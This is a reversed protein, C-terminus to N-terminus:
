KTNPYAKNDKSKVKGCICADRFLSAALYVNIQYHTALFNILYDVKVGPKGKVIEVVAQQLPDDRLVQRNYIENDLLAKLDPTMKLKPFSGGSALSYGIAIRRLISQDFHSTSRGGKDFDEESAFKYAKKIESTDIKDLGALKGYVDEELIDHVEACFDDSVHFTSIDAEDFKKAMNIDPLFIQASFRRALGSVMNIRRPRMGCWFTMGIDNVEIPRASLNKVVRSESLGTLLYVEDNKGEDHEMMTGLKAFDDAGVIGEKFREFLGKSATSDGTEKNTAVVTGMWSEQSYSAQVDTPLGLNRLFGYNPNLFQKFPVTKGWGSPAMYLLHLRFDELNGARFLEKERLNYLNLLHCCVSSCQRDVLFPVEVLRLEEKVAKKIKKLFTSM